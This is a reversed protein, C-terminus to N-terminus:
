KVEEDTSVITIGSLEKEAIIDEITEKTEMLSELSMNYFDTSCSTGIEFGRESLFANVKEQNKKYAIYGLASVGVGIAIGKILDEKSNIVFM